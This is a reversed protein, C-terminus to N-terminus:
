KLLKVVVNDGNIWVGLAGQDNPLKILRPSNGEGIELPKNNEPSISMVKSGDNWLAYNGNKTSAIVPSRGNGILVEKRGPSVAYVKGKRQWITSVTEGNVDLGGGDMPCGNIPWTGMGLKQPINFSNGGNSSRTLYLDRNGAVNNRFMIYVGEENALISPKCCECVSGDPSAYVMKSKLWSKGGDFSSSLYIKGQTKVRGENAAKFAKYSELDKAKLVKGNEDRVVWYMKGDAGQYQAVGKAGEPMEGIEKDLEEKSLPIPADHNMGTEPGKKIEKEHGESAARDKIKRGGPEIDHGEPQHSERERRTDIWTAYLKGNNDSAIDALMEGASGPIDNVKFPGDWSNANPKKRWASLDGARNPAIISYYEKGMSLRPGSSMGIVLGPFNAVKEPKNFSKGNDKSLVFYIDDGNGYTIGIAGDISTALSPQDGEGLTKLENQARATFSITFFLSISLILRYKNM